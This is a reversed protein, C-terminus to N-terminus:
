LIKHNLVFTDYTTVCLLGLGVDVLGRKDNDYINTALLWLCVFCWSVIFFHLQLQGGFVHSLM